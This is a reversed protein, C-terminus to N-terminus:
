VDKFTNFFEEYDFVEIDAFEALENFQEIALEKRGVLLIEEITYGDVKIGLEGYKKNLEKALKNKDTFFGELICDSKGKDRDDYIRAVYIKIEIEGKM